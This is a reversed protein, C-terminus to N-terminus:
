KINQLYKLFTDIDTSIKKLSDLRTKQISTIEMMNKVAEDFNKNLKNNKMKNYEINIDGISVKNENIDLKIQELHKKIDELQSKSLSTKNKALKTSLTKVLKEKNKIDKMLNTNSVRYQNIIKNEERTKALFLIKDMAKTTVAWANIEGFSLILILLLLIFLTTKKKSNLIIGGM